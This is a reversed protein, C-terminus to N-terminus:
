YEIKERKMKQVTLRKRLHQNYKLILKIKQMNEKFSITSNM